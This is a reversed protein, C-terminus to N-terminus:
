ALGEARLAQWLAAFTELSLSEARAKPDIAARALAASAASSSIGAARLNNALTKRKQAFARRLFPLFSSEEVALEAFRPALRWRFVTSHVQPPPVFASPPLTFLSEVPGYMQITASLVGYDSSGPVATIRDAVERQVMLVARDISAHAAAIHLLIPSTIYYPLNGAVPLRTGGGEGEAAAAAAAAFDFHLISQEVITVRSPTDPTSPFQVRLLAALESDLEVALVRAARAALATTIAGEGPGIEIVTSSSLDGLAAAIREVARPDRLFNQGLKPKTPV